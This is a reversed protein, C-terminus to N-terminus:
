AQRAFYRERLRREIVGQRRETAPTSGGATRRSGNRITGEARIDMVNVEGLPLGVQDRRMRLVAFPGHRLVAALESAVVSQPDEIACYSAEVGKLTQDGTPVVLGSYVAWEDM